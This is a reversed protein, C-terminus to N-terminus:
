EVIIRYYVTFVSESNIFSFEGGNKWNGDVNVDPSHDSYIDSFYDWSHGFNKGGDDESGIVQVQLIDNEGLDVHLRLKNMQHYGKHWKYERTTM